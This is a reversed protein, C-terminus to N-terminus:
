RLKRKNVNRVLDRKDKVSPDEGGGPHIISYDGGSDPSKIPPIVPPPKEPSSSLSEKQSFPKNELVKPKPLVKQSEEEDREVQAMLRDRDSNVIDPKDIVPPILLDRGSAQFK